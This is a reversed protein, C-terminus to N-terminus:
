DAGVMQGVTTTPGITVCVQSEFVPLNIPMVVAWTYQDRIAPALHESCVDTDYEFVDNTVQYDAEHTCHSLTDLDIYCCHRRM